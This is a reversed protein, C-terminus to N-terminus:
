GSAEKRFRELGQLGPHGASQGEGEWHPTCDGRQGRECLPRSPLNLWVGQRVFEDVVLANQDFLGPEDCEVKAYGDAAYASPVGEVAFDDRMEFEIPVHVPEGCLACEVVAEAHLRAKVILVNGTSVAELRGRVPGALDLDAENALDTAVEAEVKRGPHQVAENLDLLGSRRM